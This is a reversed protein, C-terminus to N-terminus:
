NEIKLEKQLKEWVSELAGAALLNGDPDVALYYPLSWAGLEKLAIAQLDLDAVIVGPVDQLQRNHPGSGQVEVSLLQASELTSVKKAIELVLNNDEGSKQGYAAWIDILVYKGKLRSFSSSNGKSDIFKFDSIPKGVEPGKSPEIQILGLDVPERGIKITRKFTFPSSGM